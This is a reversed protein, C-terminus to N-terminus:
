TKVKKRYYKSYNKQLYGELPIIIKFIGDDELNIDSEDVFPAYPTPDEWQITCKVKDAM